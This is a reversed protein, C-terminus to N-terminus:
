TRAERHPPRDTTEYLESPSGDTPFRQVASARLLAISVVHLQPWGKEVASVTIEEASAARRSSAFKPIPVSACTEPSM